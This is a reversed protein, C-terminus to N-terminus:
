LFSCCSGAAAHNRVDAEICGLVSRGVKPMWCWGGVWGLLHVDIAVVRRPAPSMIKREMDDKTTNDQFIQNAHLFKQKKMAKKQKRSLVIQNAYSEHHSQNLEQSQTENLETENKHLIRVHSPSSDITPNHITSKKGCQEDKDNEPRGAIAYLPNWDKASDSDHNEKLWFTISTRASDNQYTPNSSRRYIANNLNKFIEHPHDGWYQGGDDKPM